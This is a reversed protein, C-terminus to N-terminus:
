QENKTEKTYYDIREQAIKVYNPDQEIGIYDFGEKIAAIATTGSGLFPDLIMGKPPTILKCLYQMLKIPKVTPHINDINGFNREKKSAKACYFFRSAGGKIESETQNNLMDASENDLLVNAAWRKKNFHKGIKCADINLAGTGWKIVNNAVTGAFPKRALVIPENAPKLATGWGEWRAAEKTAPKTIFATKGVTGPEYLSNNKNCKERSNPNRSVIKRTKGAAKDIAKDVSLSKPFGSGYLWQLQDRIEFGAEEIATALHHFTRTSGFAILHGGPKLVRLAEVAWKKHWEKQQAGEGINDFGQGMFKLGYPPDCVIADVSNEKMTKMYSICDDNIVM